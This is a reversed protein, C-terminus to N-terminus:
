VKEGRIVLKRDLISVKLVEDPMAKIDIEDGYNIVVNGHYEFERVNKTFFGFEGNTMKYLVKNKDYKPFIKNFKVRLHDVNYLM